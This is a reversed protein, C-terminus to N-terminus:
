FGVKDDNGKSASHENRYVVFSCCVSYVIYEIEEKMRRVKIAHKLAHADFIYAPRMLSVM